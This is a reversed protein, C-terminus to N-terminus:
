LCTMDYLSILTFMFTFVGNFDGEPVIKMKDGHQSSLRIGFHTSMEADTIFVESEELDYGNWEYDGFPLVITYDNSIQKIPKFCLGFAPLYVIKFDIHENLFDM